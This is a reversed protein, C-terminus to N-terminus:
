ATRLALAPRRHSRHARRYLVWGMAVGFLLKSALTVGYPLLGTFSPNLIPLVVFFNTVWILVLVACSTLLSGMIGSRRLFPRWVALAFALGLLISLGLHIAVGAVLALAGAGADPAVSLSIQRLVDSSSLSTAACYGAIWVMEAVGGALGALVATSVIRRSPNSFSNSNM